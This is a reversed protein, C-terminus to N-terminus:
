NALRRITKSINSKKDSNNVARLDIKSYSGVSVARIIAKENTQYPQLINNKKTDKKIFIPKQSIITQM